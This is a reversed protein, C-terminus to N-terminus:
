YRGGLNHFRFDEEEEEKKGSFMQACTMHSIVFVKSKVKERKKLWLIDWTGVFENTVGINVSMYWIEIVYAYQFFPLVWSGDTKSKNKLFFGKRPSNQIKAPSSSTRFNKFVNRYFVYNKDNQIWKKVRVKETVAESLRIDTVQFRNHWSSVIGKKFPQQSHITRFNFHKCHLLTRYTYRRRRKKVVWM